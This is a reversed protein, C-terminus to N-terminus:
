DVTEGKICEQDIVESAQKCQRAIKKLIGSLYSVRAISLEKASEFTTFRYGCDVCHYRRYRKEKVQRSDIVGAPIYCRPCNM